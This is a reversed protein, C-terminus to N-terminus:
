KEKLLYKAKNLAIEMDAVINELGIDDEDIESKLEEVIMLGESCPRKLKEVQMKQFELVGYCGMYVEAFQDLLGVLAEYLDGLAKHENTVTDAQWHAMQLATNYAMMKGICEPVSTKPEGEEEDVVPKETKKILKGGKLIYTM